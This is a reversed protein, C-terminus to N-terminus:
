RFVKRWWPMKITIPKDNEDIIEYKINPKEKVVPAKEALDKHVQKITSEIIIKSYGQNILAIKLAEETYGKGLNKKFYDILNEKPNKRDM